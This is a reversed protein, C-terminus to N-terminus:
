RHQYGGVAQGDTAFLDTNMKMPRRGGGQPAQQQGNGKPADAAKSAQIADIFPRAQTQDFAVGFTNSLIQLKDYPLRERLQAAQSMLENRTQEFLKPFHEKMAEAKARSVRGDAMADLVSYPDGEIQEAFKLVSAQDFRLREFQPTISQANSRAQPAKASLSGYTLAMRTALAGTVNPAVEGLNGVTRDIHDQVAAQNGRNAIFAKAVREYHAQDKRDAKMDASATRRESKLFGRVGESIRRDVEATAREIATMKAAKKLLDSAIFDAHTRVAHNALAGLGGAVLGGIPGGITSGVMGAAGGAIHDTLSLFRNTGQAAVGSETAKALMKFAQYRAKADAYDALLQKSGSQEVGTTVRQELADRVAKFEERFGFLDPNVKSGAWINDADKRFDRLKTFSITKDAADPVLAMAGTEDKAVMGTIRQVDESFSKLKSLIPGAGAREEVKAMVAAIDEVVEKARPLAGTAAAREDVETLVKGIREGDRTLGADAARALDERTMSQFSSKGVLAPAEDRWVRGVQDYGGAFRDAAETLSKRGGASRFAFEGSKKDLWDSINTGELRKTIASGLGRAGTAALEHATALGGGALAGWIAGHGVGALLKEATLDHDNLAADSAEHGAGWLAGEVAAGVAQPIARQAIRGGLSTAGRGLLQAAGREALSGAGSALRPIAGAERVVSGLGRLIGGGEAAAGAGGSLAIPAIAGGLESLTSTTPNAEQHERLWDAAGSGGIGRAAVDSLGLTLGRAAGAGASAAIGGLDGYKAQLEEHRVEEHTAVEGGANVAAAVDHEPYVRIEGDADRVPIGASPAPIAAVAETM